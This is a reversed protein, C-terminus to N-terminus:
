NGPSRALLKRVAYAVVEARSALGLKSLINSVHHEATRRSIYLREAIQENSLGEALLGVVENERKTLMGTRKPWSRESVGLRRLIAAAANADRAASLRQFCELAARAEAIAVAPETEALVRAIELRSRAEEYALGASVFGALAAELHRVAGAEGASCCVVGAAFEALARVLPARTESAVESLRVCTSRADGLHGAAVEVEALLALVPAQLLGDRHQALHRRLATTALEVEGRALHLRALPRVAYPDDEHGALLQAAEELRGQRIWLDALRVMAGSRLGRYGGEYLRASSMLEHEAESWRGAVALIGGYFTRCYVTSVPLSNSRRAFAEAINMWQEARRVDLAMECVYLMKCYIEGVAAFNKVEGSTAAAVAEDLRAMGEHIRGRVVLCEGLYSLADFQLDLDGLRTAVAMAKEAHREKEEVDDTQLACALEIWGREPCDGLDTVLSRARGLWGSCAAFNGYVAGHLFALSCAAMAARRNDGCARFAAYARERYEVAAPYECHWYLAQALGDWADPSEELEVASQFRSLATGWDGVVLAEQGERVLDEAKTGGVRGPRRGKGIGM